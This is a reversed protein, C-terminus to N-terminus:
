SSQQVESPRESNDQAVMKQTMETPKKPASFLKRVVNPTEADDSTPTYHKAVAPSMPPRTPPKSPKLTGDKKQTLQRLLTLAEMQAETGDSRADGVGDDDDDSDQNDFATSSKAVRRGIAPSVAVTSGAVSSGPVYSPIVVAIQILKMKKQVPKDKALAIEWATVMNSDEADSASPDPMVFSPMTKMQKEVQLALASDSIAPKAHWISMKETLPVTVQNVHSDSHADSENGDLLASDDDPAADPADAFGNPASLRDVGDGYISLKAKVVVDKPVAWAKKSYPASKHRASAEDVHDLASASSSKFHLRGPQRPAPEPQEVVKQRKSKPARASISDGTRKSTVSAMPQSDRSENRPRLNRAMEPETTSRRSTLTRLFSPLVSQQLTLPLNTHSSWIVYEDDTDVLRRMRNFQPRPAIRTTAPPYEDELSLGTMDADNHVHRQDAPMRSQRSTTAEHLSHRRQTPQPPRHDRSTNILKRYSSAGDHHRDQRRPIATQQRSRALHKVSRFLTEPLDDDDDDSDAYIPVNAKHKSGSNQPIRPPPPGMSDVPHRSIQDKILFGVQRIRGTRSVKNGPEVSEERTLRKPTSHPAVHRTGISNSITSYVGAPMSTLSGSRDRSSALSGPAGSSHPFDFRRNEATAPVGTRSRPVRPNQRLRKELALKAEAAKIEYRLKNMSKRDNEKAWKNNSLRHHVQEELIKKREGEYQKMAEAASENIKCDNCISEPWDPPLYQDCSTCEPPIGVPGLAQTFGM